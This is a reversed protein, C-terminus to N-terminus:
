CDDFIEFPEQDLQDYIQERVTEAAAAAERAKSYKYDYGAPELMREYVSVEDIDNLLVFIAAAQEKTVDLKIKM